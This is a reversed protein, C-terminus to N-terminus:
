QVLELIIQLGLTAGAASATSIKQLSPRPPMDVDCCSSSAGAQVNEYRERIGDPATFSAAASSSFMQVAMAREEAHENWVANAYVQTSNKQAWPVAVGGYARVEDFACIGGSAPKGSGWTWTYSDPEDAEAFRFYYAQRLLRGSDFWMGQWGEGPEMIPLVGGQVIQALLFDGAVTGEPKALTLESASAVKGSSASKFM